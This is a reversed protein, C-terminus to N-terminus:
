RFFFFISFTLQADMAIFVPLMKQAIRFTCYTRTSTQSPQVYSSATTARKTTTLLKQQRRFTQGEEMDYQRINRQIYVLSSPPEQVVTHRPKPHLSSDLEEDTVEIHSDTSFVIQQGIMEDDRDSDDVKRVDLVNNNVGEETSVDPCVNTPSIPKLRDRELPEQTEHISQEQKESKSPLENHTNHKRRCCCYSFCRRLWFLNTCLQTSFHALTCGGL